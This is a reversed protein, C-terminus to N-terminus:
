HGGATRELHAEEMVQVLADLETMEFPGETVPSLRNTASVVPFSYSENEAVGDVRGGDVVRKGKKGRGVGQVRDITQGGMVAM